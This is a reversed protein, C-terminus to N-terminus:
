FGLLPRLWPLAFYVLFALTAGYMMPHVQTAKGRVLKVFSYAVFGAGIGNTISYTFPMVTMTLLAPFGEELEGFPIERVIKCMLYGVVVLAPATAQPPVVGALPAVFLALLFCFGTFVSALGTKAGESVGAASEIYTTASSAGAAGGAVAALSDVLLVRHLRPLKGDRDLWGAEGGIGIVTGMTDFFDSLMISFITVAAAVVGVRWFVEVNLGAGLTSLDPLAWIKPPIVAQGPTPFAQGGTAANVAIALLATLLIGILLAGRVRAAQLWLTMLLGVVAVVVPATTLDGLTVPIGPPGPKVFGGSVLGIFLIFLGIGVSIAQKLALPIADMIVERFGTLVLLTIAVGELFVVGMAAQWPLKMGAVLQFAVVANLGMGSAVALPYNAVVGMAISLLGAVLCTAALTSAFPPGQGELGKIGSFSLIAPNVFIIYAMVMFTTLGGTLEIGVTTRRESLGFLRDLM